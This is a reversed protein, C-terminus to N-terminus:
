QPNSGPWNDMSGARLFEMWGDDGMVVNAAEMPPANPWMMSFVSNIQTQLSEAVPQEPWSNVDVTQNAAVNEIALGDMNGQQPGGRDVQPTDLYRGCLDSIIQYCRGSSANISALATITHLTTTLQGRWDAAFPSSPENRLCICPILAAQFLFYSDNILHHMM